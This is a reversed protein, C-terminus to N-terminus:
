SQEMIDLVSLCVGVPYCRYVCSVLMIGLCATVIGGPVLLKKRKWAIFVLAAAFVVGYLAATFDYIGGWLCILFVEMGAVLLSGRNKFM